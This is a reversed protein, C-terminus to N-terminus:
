LNHQQHLSQMYASLYYEHVYLPRLHYTTPDPLQSEVSNHGQLLYYRNKTQLHM